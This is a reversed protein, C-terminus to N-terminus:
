GPEEGWDGIDFLAEAPRDAQSRALRAVWAALPLAEPREAGGLLNRSLAQALAAEDGRALAEGYASLRGYFAGALRRMRKPVTLDGVGAERLGSDFHRFLADAFAQALPAFDPDRELRIFALCAHLAVVEFRGELTDAARGAGFFGARRGMQSVIDVLREADGRARSTRFPWLKAWESM